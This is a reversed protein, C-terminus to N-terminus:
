RFEVDGSYMKRITGDQLRIALAGLEDIGEAYGDVLGQATQCRIPKHLSVSLAEWLLKIPAFGQEHYLAYLQEWELLFRCLLEVRDIRYGAEIFLSTAVNRLEPPYDDPELNVGIGVGAIIHQLTENEASSELLIGAAKRGGILLDNPWKIGAEVPVIARIARCLAVSVLLTLQPTFTLPIHKPRLIMSMWLGKGKPSHWQRGMRGRGATQREALVLTGEPAGEAVLSLAVTQTSDVEDYYKVHKGFRETQLKGIFAPLDFIDPKALLRYGKRPAAEFRYGQQRLREIQKWVATRSIQLRESLEEGSLFAGNSQEFLELLRDTM